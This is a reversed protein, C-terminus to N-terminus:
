KEATRNGFGRPFYHSAIDFSSKGFGGARNRINRESKFDFFVGTSFNDKIHETKVADFKRLLRKETMGFIPALDM